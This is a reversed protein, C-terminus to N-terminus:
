KELKKKDGCSQCLKATPFPKKTLKDDSDWYKSGKSIKVGCVSCDYERNLATRLKTLPM